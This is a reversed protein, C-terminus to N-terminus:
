KTMKLVTNSAKEICRHMNINLHSSVIESMNGTIYYIEIDSNDKHLILQLHWHFLTHSNIKKPTM